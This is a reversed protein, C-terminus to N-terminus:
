GRVGEGVSPVARWGNPAPAGGAREYWQCMAHIADTLTASPGGGKLLWDLAGLATAADRKRPDTDASFMLVAVHALNPDSRVQELVEVGTMGPMMEDLIVLLPQDRPHTRLRALAEAGGPVWECPYGSHKLLRCLAIAGDVHDDVILIM